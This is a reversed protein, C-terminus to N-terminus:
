YIKKFQRSPCPPQIILGFDLIILIHLYKVKADMAVALAKQNRVYEAKAHKVSNRANESDPHKKQEALANRYRDIIKDNDKMRHDIRTDVNEIITSGM